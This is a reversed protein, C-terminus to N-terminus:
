WGLVGDWLRGRVGWVVWVLWCWFSEGWGLEVLMVRVGSGEGMM